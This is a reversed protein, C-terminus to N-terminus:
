INNINEGIAQLIKVIGCIGFLLVSGVLYPIMDKKYESKDEVSGLMYKIGLIAPMLVSMIIGINSIIGLILGAKSYVEDPADTVNPTYDSINEFVDDFEKEEREKYKAFNEYAYKKLDTVGDKFASEDGTVNSSGTGEKQYIAEIIFKNLDTHITVFKELGVIRTQITEKEKNSVDGENIQKELDSILDKTNNIEDEITSKWAKLVGCMPDNMKLLVNKVINDYKEEILYTDFYNYIEGATANKDPLSNEAACATNFILHLSFFLFLIILKIKRKVAIVGWMIKIRLVIKCYIDKKQM